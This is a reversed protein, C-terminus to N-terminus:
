SSPEACLQMAGVSIVEDGDFLRFKFQNSDRDSVKVELNFEQTQLLPRKFKLGQLGELERDDGDLEQVLAAVWRLQLVGPVIAYEPFHGPWVDLHEPVRLKQRIFGRGRQEDLVEPDLAPASPTTNSPPFFFQLFRDGPAGMYRRFRWHRYVYEVAFLMGMLVYSVIGSYLTWLEIDGLVALWLATAGNAVFFVCWVVTIRRCYQLEAASLDPAQVKAFREVTSEEQFLSAAFVGLLGLNIAVPTLLLSLPHNSLSTLTAMSAVAVIPLWYARLYAGFQDRASILVRVVLLVLVLMGLQSPELVKLGFYILAPYAIAILSQIVAM